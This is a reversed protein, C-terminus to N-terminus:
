KGMSKRRRRSQRLALAAALLGIGAAVGASDLCVDWLSSNRGPSLLQLTEDVCAALVGLGAAPAAFGRPLPREMAFLWSLLVGLCAFECFHAVKRLLGTGQGLEEQWPLIMCLLEGAWRSLAQSLEGPLLSNGWIFALDAALLILCWAKGARTKRIM